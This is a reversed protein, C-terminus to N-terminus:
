TIRTTEKKRREKQCEKSIRDKQRIREVKKMETKMKEKM